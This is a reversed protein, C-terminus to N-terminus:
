CRANLGGPRMVESNSEAALAGIVIVVSPSSPAVALLWLYIRTALQYRPEGPRDKTM